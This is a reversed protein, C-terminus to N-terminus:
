AAAASFDSASQEVVFAESNYKRCVRMQQVLMDSVGPQSIMSWAEDIAFLKRKVFRLVHKAIRRGFQERFVDVNWGIVIIGTRFKDPATQGALIEAAIRNLEKGRVGAQYLRNLLKTKSLSEYPQQRANTKPPNPYAPEVIRYFADPQSAPTPTVDTGWVENDYDPEYVVRVVCLKRGQSNANKM